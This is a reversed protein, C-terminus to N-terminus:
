VAVFQMAVRGEANYLSSQGTAQALVGVARENREAHCRVVQAQVQHRQRLREYLGLLVADAAADLPPGARRARAAEAVRQTVQDREAAVAMLTAADQAALAAEERVLLAELLLLLAGEDNGKPLSAVSGPSAPASM